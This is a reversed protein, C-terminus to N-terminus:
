AAAAPAAPAAPAPAAYSAPAPAAVTATQRAVRVNLWDHEAYERKVEIETLDKDKLLTALAEIFAVDSARTADTEDTM